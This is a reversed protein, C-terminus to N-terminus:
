ATRPKAPSYRQRPAAVSFQLHTRMEIIEIKNKQGAFKEYPYLYNLFVEIQQHKGNEKRVIPVINVHWLSAEEISETYKIKTSTRKTKGHLGVFANPSIKMLDPTMISKEIM